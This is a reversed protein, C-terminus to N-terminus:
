GSFVRCPGARGARNFFVITAGKGGGNNEVSRFDAGCAFFKELYKSMDPPNGLDTGREGGGNNEVMRYVVPPFPM